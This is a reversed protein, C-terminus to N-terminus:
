HWLRVTGDDGASALLDYTPSFVVREVEGAHGGLAIVLASRPGAPLEPAPGFVPEDASPM